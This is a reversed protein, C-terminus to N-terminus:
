FPVHKESGRLQYCCKKKVGGRSFWAALSMKQGAGCAALVMKQGAGCAALLRSLGRVVLPSSDTSGWAVLTSVIGRFEAFSPNLLLM